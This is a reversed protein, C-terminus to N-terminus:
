FAMRSKVKLFTDVIIEQSSKIYNVNDVDHINDLKHTTVIVTKDLETLERFWGFMEQTCALDVDREPEDFLYLEKEVITNLFVLLLKRQRLSLAGFKNPLLDGIVDPLYDKATGQLQKVFEIIELVTLEASFQDCEALYAIEFPEPFGIFNEGRIRDIDALCDLIRSKGSQKEGLIFNLQGDEFQLAVQEFIKKRGCYCNFNEVKM